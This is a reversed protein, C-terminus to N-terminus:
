SIAAPEILISPCPHDVMRGKCFGWLKTRFSFLLSLSLGCNLFNVFPRVVGRIVFSALIAPEEGNVARQPKLKFDSLEDVVIVFLKAVKFETM